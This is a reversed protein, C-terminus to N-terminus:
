PRFEHGCKKCIILCTFMSERVIVDTSNCKPCKFKKM